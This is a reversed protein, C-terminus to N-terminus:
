VIFGARCALKTFAPMTLSTEFSSCEGLQSTLNAQHTNVRHLQSMSSAEDHSRPVLSVDSYVRLRTSWIAARHSQDLPQLHRPLVHNFTAWHRRMVARNSGGIFLSQRPRVLQFWPRGLVGSSSARWVTVVVFLRCQDATCFV